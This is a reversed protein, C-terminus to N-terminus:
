IATGRKVCLQWGPGDGPVADTDSTACWLSGQRTVLSGDLTGSSLDVLALVHACEEVGLNIGCFPCEPYDAPLDNDGEDPQCGEDEGTADAVPDPPAGAPWAQTPSAGSSPDPTGASASPPAKRPTKNRTM